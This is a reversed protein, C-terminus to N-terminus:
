FTARTFPPSPEPQDRTAQTKVLEFIHGSPHIILIDGAYFTPKTRVDGVTLTTQFRITYPVGHGSRIERVDAHQVFTDPQPLTIPWTHCSLLQYTSIGLGTPSSHPEASPETMPPTTPRRVIFRVVRTLKCSYTDNLFGLNLYNHSQFISRPGQIHHDFRDYIPSEFSSARFHLPPLRHPLSPVSQAWTTRTEQIRYAVQPSISLSAALFYSSRGTSARDLCCKSAHNTHSPHQNPDSSEL